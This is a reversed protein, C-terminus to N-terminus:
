PAEHSGLHRGAFSKWIGNSRIANERMEITNASRRASDTNTLKTTSLRSKSHTYQLQAVQIVVMVVCILCSFV